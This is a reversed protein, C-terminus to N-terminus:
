PKRLRIMSLGGLVLGGGIVSVWQTLGLFSVKFHFWYDKYGSLGETGPIVIFSPQIAVLFLWIIITLLASLLTGDILIRKLSLRNKM